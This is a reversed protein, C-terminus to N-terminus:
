TRTPRAPARPAAGRGNRNRVTVSFKKHAAQASVGLAEGVAAWTWGQEIAASVAAIELQNAKRRLAVVAALATGPDAPDPLTRADTV